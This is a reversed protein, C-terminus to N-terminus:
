RGPLHFVDLVGTSAHSNADGEPEIARGGVVIPSNWHGTGIRMSRLLRGSGPDRVTLAGDAQDYIYLLRGAIVPSTGGTTNSWAVRLRPHRGGVLQYASTGANTTAFLLIRGGDRWVAPAAFVDTPGPAAVEGLEGGLRRGAGGRTGDLRALNLLHLAGDKGGQVALRFGHYRPMVVPATSGVDVDNADLAAQNRPTWNHLLRSADPSLELVSSGWNESGDFPGNGTAVLLRGSGPEVVAGARAWIASDGRTNTVSCSSAAILRHRNACETNWVHGIRGSARDITVVHGDYPPIDGIYGGTVAIVWRGSLNLASALKEHVPDFTVPRSWAQRGSAVALKHILGDPSASYIFRRDPDAVPSATTIQATGQYRGIGAPVFEWLRAGTAADLAITKGYTTTVFIVDRSRGHVRVAHLEIASSDVTGDLRVRRLGLRGLNRATIGTDAPGVGTRASNFGFKPWDGAHSSAASGPGPAAPSSTDATTTAGATHGGCAILVAACAAPVALRALWPRSGVNPVFRFSMARM